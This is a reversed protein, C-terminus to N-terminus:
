NCRKCVSRCAACVSGVLSYGTSCVCSGTADVEKNTDCSTCQNSSASLCTVCDSHCPLCTSNIGDDYTGLLEWIIFFILDYKVKKLYNISQIVLNAFVNTRLLIFNDQRFARRVSLIRHAQAPIVLITVDWVSKTPILTIHIRACVISVSIGTQIEWRFWVIKALLFRLFWALRVLIKQASLFQRPYQHARSPIWAMIWSSIKLKGLSFRTM